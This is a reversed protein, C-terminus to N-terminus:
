YDAEEDLVEKLHLPIYVDLIREVGLGRDSTYVYETKLILFEEEEEFSVEEYEKEDEIIPIPNDRYIFSVENSVEFDLYQNDSKTYLEIKTTRASTFNSDVDIKVETGFSSIDKKLFDIEAKGYINITDVQYQELIDGTTKVIWDSETFIKNEENFNIFSLLQEIRLRDM